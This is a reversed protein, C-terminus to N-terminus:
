PPSSFCPLLLGPSCLTKEEEAVRLPVEAADKQRHVREFVVIRWAMVVAIAAFLAVDVWAAVQSTLRNFRFFLSLASPTLAAGLLLDKIAITRGVPDKWWRALRSYDGIFAALTVLDAIIVIKFLLILLHSM